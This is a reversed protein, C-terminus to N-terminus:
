ESLKYIDRGAIVSCQSKSFNLCQIYGALPCLDTVKIRLLLDSAWLTVGPKGIRFFGMLPKFWDPPAQHHDLVLCLVEM